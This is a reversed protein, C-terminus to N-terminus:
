QKFLRQINHPQKRRWQSLFIKKLKYIEPMLWSLRIVVSSSYFLYAYNNNLSLDLMQHYNVDVIMLPFNFIMFQIVM